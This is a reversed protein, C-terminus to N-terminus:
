SESESKSKGDTSCLSPPARPGVCILVRDLISAAINPATTTRAPITITSRQFFDKNSEQSSFALASFPKPQRQSQAQTALPAEPALEAETARHVEHTQNTETTRNDEPVRHVAVVSPSAAKRKAVIEDRTESWEPYAAAFPSALSVALAAHAEEFRGVEGLEVALSNLFDYYLVPYSRGVARILPFLRDLDALAQKHDGHIGRIVATMRQSEALTPLDCNSGARGAALYFPLAADPEGSEHYTAGIIQLARARYQPATEEVVSELLRRAEAFDGRQKSCLSQYYRAIGELQDSIPLALMLQSAQEVVDIQRALYAHRAIQTLQRGLLRFGEITHINTVLSSYILPRYYGDLSFRDNPEAKNGGLSTPIFLISAQKNIVATRGKIAECVRFLEILDTGKAM